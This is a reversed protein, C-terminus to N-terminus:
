TPIVGDDLGPNWGIPQASLPKWRVFIDLPSEGKLIAQLKEQLILAAELRRSDGADRV